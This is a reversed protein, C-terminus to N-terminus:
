NLSFLPAKLHKVSINASQFKRNIPLNRARNYTSCHSSRISPLKFHHNKDYIKMVIILESDLAELYRLFSYEEDVM